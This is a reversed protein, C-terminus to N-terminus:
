KVNLVVPSDAGNLQRQEEDDTFCNYILRADYKGVELPHSLVVPDSTEGPKILDSEWLTEGDLVIAVRFQAFNQPPNDFTLTQQTSGAKLLLSGFQPLDITDTLKEVPETVESTNEPPTDKNRAAVAWIAVLVSIVTIVTLVILLIDRSDRKKKRRKPTEHNGAILTM